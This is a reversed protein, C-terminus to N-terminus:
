TVVAILLIIGGIGLFAGGVGAMVRGRTTPSTQVERAALVFGALMLVATIGWALRTM